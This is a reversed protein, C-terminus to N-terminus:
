ESWTALPKLAPEEPSAGEDLWMHVAIRKPEGDSLIRIGLKGVDENQREAEHKPKVLMSEFSAGAPALIKAVFQKGEQQLRAMGGDVKIDKGTIMQWVIEGKCGEVEDQILFSRHNFLAVGRFVSEAENRWPKTMDIVAHSRQPSSYFTVIPSASDDIRQREGNLWLTSHGQVGFRFLDYRTKPNWLGGIEREITEYSDRSLDRSWRKGGAVVVFSGADVHNHSNENNGGKVALWLSDKDWGSRFLAIPNPGEGLYDLPLEEKPEEASMYWALFFPFTRGTGQGNSKVLEDFRSQGVRKALWAVDPRQYRKAFWLLAPDLHRNSLSSDYYNYSFGDPGVIQIRYLATKEFGKMATLGYDAGLASELTSIMMVNYGTGYGWYSAGEPYVGMPEYSKKMCVKVGEVGREVARRAWEPEDEAMALAAMMLGGNCVQNWNNKGYTWWHDKAFGPKLGKEIIATRIISRTEESLDHYLWDYGIALGACMEAVDLFHSPNWDKLACAALMEKEARQLYKMEGTMRYAASLHVIRDLSDRTQQLLRRGDKKYVIVPTHIYLDAAQMMIDCLSDFYPDTKRRAKAEKEMEETFIIRPHEKRLNTLVELEEEAM